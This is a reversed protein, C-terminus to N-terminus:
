HQTFFYATLIFSFSILNLLILILWQGCSIHRLKDLLYNLSSDSNAVLTITNEQFNFIKFFNTKTFRDYIFVAPNRITM